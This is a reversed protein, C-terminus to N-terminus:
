LSSKHERFKTLLSKQVFEKVVEASEMDLVQEAIEKMEVLSLQNIYSRVKLISAANMSFEDLGLGLLIPIAVKDGAMEGCLSVWKGEKHAADIVMKILRFIAPNYPQYLYAVRENMRDAAMSYQILDNTGISFFDVEKVFRDAMLATVPVEVMIGIEISEDIKVGDNKLELMVKHLIKKAARLEPLTSVMPFMLKVNGYVSARLIARLQTEFPFTEKLSYRIARYGLFPNKEFPLKLYPIMKDGGVDLTRIIVPKSDMDILINKYIEFQEDESPMETRGMFLFETRFLGIGEAGNLLVNKGDKSSVINAALTLQYGDKTITPQDVFKGWNRVKEEQMIQESEYRRVLEPTPNIHVQGRYGDVILFDGQEILHISEEMGVIVPINLSRAIIAAHSTSAGRETVFGKIYQPNLQATESPTLDKAIIIVDEAILSLNPVYIGLLHALLRNKVDIIDVVRERMWVNDSNELMNAFVSVTEQLAFEANLSETQIKKVIPALFASDELILLHADFIAAQDRGIEQKAKERIITLEAKSKELIEQFRSVEEDRDEILRREVLLIPEGMRYAKAMAIGNSAAIGSILTSM